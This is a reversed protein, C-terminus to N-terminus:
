VLLEDLRMSGAAEVAVTSAIAGWDFQLLFQGQEIQGGMDLITDSLNYGTTGKVLAAFNHNGYRVGHIWTQSQLDRLRSMNM